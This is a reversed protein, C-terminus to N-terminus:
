DGVVRSVILILTLMFLATFIIGAIIYPVISSQQFDRERNKNTQVGFAAAFTSLVLSWLSPKQPKDNQSM